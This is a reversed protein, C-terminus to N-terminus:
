NRVISYCYKGEVSIKGNSKSATGFYDQWSNPGWDRRPRGCLFNYFVHTCTYNFRMESVAARHPTTTSFGQEIFGRGFERSMESSPALCIDLSTNSKLPTALRERIESSKESSEECVLTHNEKFFGAM